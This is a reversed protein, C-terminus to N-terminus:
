RCQLAYHKSCDGFFHIKRLKVGYECHLGVCVDPLLESAQLNVEERKGIGTLVLLTDTGAANGAAIDTDFRDGM